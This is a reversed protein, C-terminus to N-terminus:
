WGRSSLRGERMGKERALLAPPMAAWAPGGRLRSHGRTWGLSWVFSRPGRCLRSASRQAQNERIRPKRRTRGETRAGPAAKIQGSGHRKSRGTGSQNAQVKQRREAFAAQAPCPTQLLLRLRPWLGAWCSAPRHTLHVGTPGPLEPQWQDESARLRRQNSQQFTGYGPSNTRQFLANKRNRETPAADRESCVYSDVQGRNQAARHQM